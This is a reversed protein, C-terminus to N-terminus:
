GEVVITGMMQTPHIACSFAYEGPEDFTFEFTEGQSLTGSDWVGDDSTWTHGFSDQNTVTVTTGVSVRTAGSFSFNSITITPEIVGGETTKSESATTSPSATTPSEEVLTTTSVSEGTCATMVILATLLSAIKRSRTSMDRTM